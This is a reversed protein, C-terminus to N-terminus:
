WSEDNGVQIDNHWFLTDSFTGDKNRDKWNLSNLIDEDHNAEEETISSLIEKKTMGGRLSGWYISWENTSVEPM